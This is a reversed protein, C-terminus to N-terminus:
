ARAEALAVVNPAEVKGSVIAELHQAWAALAIRRQPLYQARNYVGAVGAKAAGSVHNVVAEVVHPEIELDENMGTVVTRRFDHFRWDEIPTKRTELLRNIRVKPTGWGSVPRDIQREGKENRTHARGSVFVHECSGLRPLGAILDRVSPALPVIHDLGNKTRTGPILWAPNDADLTLESWRMGGVEGLRQGTLLLLKLVPGFPFRIEDFTPWLLKIEEATLVRDRDREEAPAEVGSAPSAAILRRPRMAAWQFVRRVNALTRNAAIPRTIAIDDVLREVDEQSIDGINRSGWEPFVLRELDGRTRDRSRLNGAGRKGVDDLWREAVNRFTNAVARETERKAEEAAEKRAAKSTTDRGAAADKIVKEAKDRADALNISAVSGISRRIQRGNLRTTVCYTRKGGAHIRLALGACLDDWLEVTGTAPPLQYKRVVGNKDHATVLKANTVRDTLRCAPM